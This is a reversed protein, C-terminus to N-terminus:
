PLRDIFEGVRLVFEDEREFPALHGAGRLEVFRGARIREAMRRMVLASSVRDESGAVCLVPCNLRALLERRDFRVLAHVTARYSDAPIARMVARHAEILRASAQPGAMAPILTTALESM